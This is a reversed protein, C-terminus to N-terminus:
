IQVAIDGEALAPGTGKGVSFQIREDLVIGPSVPFHQLEKAVEARVARNEVLLLRMDAGVAQNRNHCRHPLFNLTEAALDAKRRAGHIEPDFRVLERRHQDLLRVARAVFEFRLHQNGRGAM